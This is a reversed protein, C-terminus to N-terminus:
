QLMIDFAIISNKLLVFLLEGKKLIILLTKDVFSRGETFEFCVQLGLFEFSAFKELVWTFHM